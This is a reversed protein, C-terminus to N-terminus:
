RWYSRGLATQEELTAGDAYASDGYVEPGKSVSGAASDSAPDTGTDAAPDGVGSETDARVGAGHQDLLKNIVERDDEGIQARVLPRVPV